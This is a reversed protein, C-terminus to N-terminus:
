QPPAALQDLAAEGVAVLRAAHPAAMQASPFVNQLSLENV